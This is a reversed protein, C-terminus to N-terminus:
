QGMEYNNHCSCGCHPPEWSSSYGPPTEVHFYADVEEKPIKGFGYAREYNMQQEIPLTNWTLLIERKWKILKIQSLRRSRNKEHITKLLQVQVDPTFAKIGDKGGLHMYLLDLYINIQTNTLQEM